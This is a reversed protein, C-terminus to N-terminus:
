QVGAPVRNSHPPMAGAPKFVMSSRRFAAADPATLAEEEQYDGFSM